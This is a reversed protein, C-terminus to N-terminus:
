EFVESVNAASVAGGLPGRESIQFKRALVISVYCIGFTSASQSIVLLALTILNLKGGQFVSDAEYSMSAAATILIFAAVFPLVLGAFLRLFTPVLGYRGRSLADALGSKSGAIGATPWTGVLALLLPYVIAIVALCLLLFVDRSFSAAGLAIPLGVGVGMVALMILLNKWIYGGIGGMGGSNLGLVKGDGNLIASQVCYGFYLVIFYRTSSSGGRGSYDEFAVVACGIAVFVCAFSLNRRIFSITEGLM